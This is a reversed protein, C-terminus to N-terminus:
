RKHRIFIRKYINKNNVIPTWGKGDIHKGCDAFKNSCGLIEFQDPCYKDLFTIPVGIVGDYYIPIDRTKSCEIADYNDYKKYEIPNYRKFLDLSIHRKSNEINTFWRVTRLSIWKEGNEDIGCRAANLEYDDSVRFRMGTNKFFMDIWMQDNKIYHFVENYTIANMNGVVLFKKNFEMMLVIFQRFLSFPPNTVVVDSEELLARCEEDRFDGHGKLETISTNQNDFVYKVGHGKENYSVCTLKALELNEFNTSFYKFFSSWTDDNCNCLVKKRRFFDKYKEIEHEVDDIHTYFEDKKASKAAHLNVAHLNSNKSM